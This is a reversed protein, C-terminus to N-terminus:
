GGVCICLAYGQCIKSPDLVVSDLFWLSGIEEEENTLSLLPFFSGLSNFHSSLLLPSGRGSRTM